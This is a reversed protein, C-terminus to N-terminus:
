PSSTDKVVRVLGATVVCATEPMPVVVAVPLPVMDDGAALVTVLASHAPAGAVVRIDVVARGPSLPVNPVAENVADM